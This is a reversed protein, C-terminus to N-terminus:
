RRRWRVLDGRLGHIGQAARCHCTEREQWAQEGVGVQCRQAAAVVEVIQEPIRSRASLAVLVGGAAAAASGSAVLGIAVPAMGNFLLVLGGALAAAGGVAVLIWGPTRRAGRAADVDRLTETAAARRQELAASENQFQFSLEAQQRLLRVCEPPLGGFRQQLFQIKEPEHGKGALVDRLEFVQHRLLADQM